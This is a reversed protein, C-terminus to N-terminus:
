SKRRKKDSGGRPRKRDASSFRDASAAQTKLATIARKREGLALYLKPLLLLDNSAEIESRKAVLLADLESNWGLEELCRVQWWLDGIKSRSELELEFLKAVAGADCLEKLYYAASFQNGGDISEAIGLCYHKVANPWDNIKAYTRGLSLYSKDRQQRSIIESVKENPVLDARGQLSRLFLESEASTGSRIAKEIYKDRLDIGGYTNYHMALLEYAKNERLAEATSTVYDIQDDAQVFESERKEEVMRQFSVIRAWDARYLIIQEADLKKAFGGILMTLNHCEFCLVALNEIANNSPNEDIHHIQVPKGSQRCVCCTRDSLFLVKASIGAPIAVRRKKM